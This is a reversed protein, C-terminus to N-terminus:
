FHFKFHLSYHLAASPSGAQEFNEDWNLRNYASGFDVNDGGLSAGITFKRLVRIEAGANINYYFQSGFKKKESFIVLNDPSEIEGESKMFYIGMGAGAFLSLGLENDLLLYFKPAVSLALISADFYQWGQLDPEYNDSFKIMENDNLTNNGTEVNLGIGLFDHMKIEYELGLFYYSYAADVSFPSGVYFSISHKEERDTDKEEEPFVSNKFDLNSTHTKQAVLTLPLYISLAIIIFFKHNMLKDKTKLKTTTKIQNQRVFIPFM